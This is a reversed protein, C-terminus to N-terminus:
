VPIEPGKDSLSQNRMWAAIWDLTDAASRQMKAWSSVATQRWAEYTAGADKGLTKLPAKQGSLVARLEAITAGMRAKAADITGKHERAARAAATMAENTQEELYSVFGDVASQFSIEQAELPKASVATAPALLLVGLM